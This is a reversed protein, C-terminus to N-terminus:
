EFLILEEVKKGLAEALGQLKDTRPLRDGQALKELAPISYGSTDALKRYAGPKNQFLWEKLVTANFKMKQTRKAAM